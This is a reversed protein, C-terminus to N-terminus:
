PTNESFINNGQDTTAYLFIFDCIVLARESSKCVWTENIFYSFWRQRKLPLFYSSFLVELSLLMLMSIIISFHGGFFVPLLTLNMGLMSLQSSRQFHISSSINFNSRCACCAWMLQPKPFFSRLNFSEKLLYAHSHIADRLRLSPPIVLWCVPAVRDEQQGASSCVWFPSLVPM